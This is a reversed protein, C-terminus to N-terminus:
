RCRKIGSFFVFFIRSILHFLNSLFIKSISVSKKVSFRVYNSELDRIHVLHQRKVFINISSGWVRLSRVKVYGFPNLVSRCARSWNDEACLVTDFVFRDPRISLEQFGLCYIDPAEDLNKGEIGLLKRCDLNEPAYQANTNWTMAYIRFFHLYKPFKSDIEDIYRVRGLGVKSEFVKHTNMPTLILSTQFDSCYKQVTQLHILSRKSGYM